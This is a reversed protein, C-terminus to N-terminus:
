DPAEIKKVRLRPSENASGPSSIKRWKVKLARNEISTKLFQLIRTSIGARIYIMDREPDRAAKTRSTHKL